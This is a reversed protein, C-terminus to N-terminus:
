IHQLLVYPQGVNTVVNLVKYKGNYILENRNPSEIFLYIPYQFRQQQLLVMNPKIQYNINGNDLRFCYAYKGNERLGDNYNNNNMARVLVAKLLNYTQNTLKPGIWNIGQQPTNGIILEHNYFEWKKQKSKIILDYYNQLDISNGKTINLLDIVTNVPM